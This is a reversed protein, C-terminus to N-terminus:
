YLNGDYICTIFKWPVTALTIFILNTNKGQSVALLLATQNRNNRLDIDAQGLRVLTEVVDKHGNLSALHLASFGDDKKVDM